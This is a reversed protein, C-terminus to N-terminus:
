PSLVEPPLSSKHVYNLLAGPWKKDNEQTDEGCMYLFFDCTFINWGHISYHMYVYAAIHQNIHTSMYPKVHIVLLISCLMYFWM